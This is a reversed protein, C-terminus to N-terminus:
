FNPNYPLFNVSEKSIIIYSAKTSLTSWSWVACFQLRIESTCQGCKWELNYSFQKKMKCHFYIKLWHFVLIQENLLSPTLFFITHFIPWLLELFAYILASTGAMYSFYRQFNCKVDHLSLLGAFSINESFISSDAQRDMSLQLKICTYILISQVSDM